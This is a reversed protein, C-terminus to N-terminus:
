RLSVAALADEIEQKAKNAEEILAKGGADEGEDDEINLIEEITALADRVKTIDVASLAKGNNSEFDKLLAEVDTEPTIVLNYAAKWDAPIMDEAGLAAARKKIHARDASTNGGLGITTIANKLDTKDKIPYSGDPRAEGSKAMESRQAASYDRKTEADEGGGYLLLSKMQDATHDHNSHNTGGYGYGDSASAHTHAHSHIMDGHNHQHDVVGTHVMSNSDAKASTTRALDLMPLATHGYEFLDVEKLDRGQATRTAGKQTPKYTYSMGLPRGAQQYAKIVAFSERGAQTNLLFKTATYLGKADERIDVPVAPIDKVHVKYDHSPLYIIQSKREALTKTFAGPHVMDGGHDRAGFVSAYGEVLGYDEGDQKVEIDAFAVQKTEQGDMKISVEEILDLFEEISKKQNALVGNAMHHAIGDARGGAIASEYIHLWQRRRRASLKQVNSPLNPDDPGSYPM